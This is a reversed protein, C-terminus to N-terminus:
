IGRFVSGLFLLLYAALMLPYAYGSVIPLSAFQGTLSLIALLMSLSFVAKTPPSLRM